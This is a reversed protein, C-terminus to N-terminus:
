RLQRDLVERVRTLLVAPTFPKHLLSPSHAAIGSRDLADGVYGSMFLQRTDPRHIALREALQRGNMQPMVVDSLLLDIAGDHGRALTLAAWPTAAELVHYGAGRLTESVLERVPDEDEVILVTESGRPPPTPPGAQGAAAAGVRPLYIHFTTGVGPTSDVTIHGDHQTVVGYVTALWLGTGQGPPKTTFFPEFIHSLTEASMGCGTDGVSLVAYDGPPVPTDDAEHAVVRRATEITLRGGHPMADRSNVALNLLIQEVQTPDADVWPEGAGLSIALEVDEGILRRLMPGIAGVTANLSLRRRELRQKRSFALLQRTLAAARQGAELILKAGRSGPDKRLMTEARGIIVTLLNNFDHAIGGALRGIAEMKQAVRLQERLHTQESIDHAIAVTGVVRNDADRLISFSASVEIWRGDQTRLSTEYGRVRGDARLRERVARIDEAGRRVYDDLPRGLVESPAYGYIELARPSLYTVHGAPDFTVIPDTSKAISELFERTHTAEEYLRANELALAVQRAVARFLEGQGPRFAGPGASVLVIVGLRREGSALPLIAGSRVGGGLEGLLASEARGDGETLVLPEGAALTPALREDLAGPWRRALPTWTMGDSVVTVSDGGDAAPRLHVLGGDAGSVEVIKTVVGGLVDRLRGAPNLPTVLAYLASLDRTAEAVRRELDNRSAQLRSAMLNFEGALREIEDGTHIALRHGLEGRAITAAGRALQVIPRGLRVSFWVSCLAAAGLALAMLGLAIREVRRVGALAAEIPEEVVVSWQPRAVVASAILAPTGDLGPEPAATARALPRPRAPDRPRAVTTGLLVRSYDRHALLHGYRDVVYVSGTEGVAVSAVPDWLAKLNIDAVLAGATERATIRIPVAVTVMPEATAAYYVDGISVAGALAGAAAETDLARADPADDLRAQSVRLVGRGSRDTLTVESVAPSARLLYRLIERQRERRGEWFLGFEVAGVLEALRQDMFAEIRNAARDAIEQQTRAVGATLAPRLAFAWLAAGLGGIAAIGLLLM